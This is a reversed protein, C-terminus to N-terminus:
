KYTALHILSHWIDRILDRCSDLFELFSLIEESTLMPRSRDFGTSLNFFIYLSLFLSFLYVQMSSPINVCHKSNVVTNGLLHSEFYGTGVVAALFLNFVTQTFSDIFHIGMEIRM